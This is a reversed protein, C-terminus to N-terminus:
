VESTILLRFAYFMCPVETDDYRAIKEPIFVDVINASSFVVCRVKGALIDVDSVSINLLM